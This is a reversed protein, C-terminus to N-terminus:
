VEIEGNMLRPLLTDRINELNRNQLSNNVFKELLIGIYDSGARIISEDPIVVLAERLHNRKIHGMTTAKDAAIRQFEDLHHATWYYYFWKPFNKSTVKFLHQNLGGKGGCWVKVLLSGSWSFIIDGDDIIYDNSFNLNARNSSSDAAGARLERIKIVPLSEQGEIPPYKQMALGNLYDAIEDLPKIEWGRPILGLESEVLEGPFLDLVEAPLPYDRGEMKAYVPDFNVFWSKFIARATAELTANMRRNLEIKDDLSGLIEAIREQTPLPPFPIKLERIYKLSLTKQSTGVALERIQKEVIPSILAFYLYRSCEQPVIISTNQGICFKEDINVFSFNFYSGVRSIIINGKQPINNKTYEKYVEESVTKTNELSLFGNKIDAARVIPFGFETYSPTKHLSDIIKSINGLESFRKMNPNRNEM